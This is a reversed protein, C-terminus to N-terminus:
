PRDGALGVVLYARQREVSSRETERTFGLVADLAEVLPAEGVDLDLETTV